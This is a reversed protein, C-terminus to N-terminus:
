FVRRVDGEELPPNNTVAGAVLSGGPALGFGPCAPGAFTM